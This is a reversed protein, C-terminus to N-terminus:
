QRLIAAKLHAVKRVPTAKIAHKGGDTFGFGNQGITEEVENNM